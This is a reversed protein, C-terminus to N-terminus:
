WMPAPSPGRHTWGIWVTRLGGRGSSQPARQVGPRPTSYGRSYNLQEEPIRGGLAHSTTLPTRAIPRGSLRDSLHERNWELELARCTAALRARSAPAQTGQAAAEEAAIMQDYLLAHRGTLRARYLALSALCRASYGGSVLIADNRQKTRVHFRSDAWAVALWNRFGGGTVTQMDAIRNPIHVLDDIVDLLIEMVREDVSRPRRTRMMRVVRQPERAPPPAAFTSFLGDRSEPRERAEVSFSARM